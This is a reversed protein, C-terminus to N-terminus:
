PAAPQGEGSADSAAEWWGEPTAAVAQPNSWARPRWLLAHGRAALARATEAELGGPEIQIADPRWQHHIRPTSVAQSLSMGDDVMHSIVQAVSTPITTGGPAGVVLWLKGGPDFVLTPSMSSLPVKGPAPANAGTGVAGFANPVGPAADFDDMEDNLVFGAEPVVVCSGFYFNVTTTLSVANGARDAVSLHSTQSTEPPPTPGPVDAARPGVAAALSAAADKSTMREVEAAAGPVFAPDGLVARRAYLRKSIEVMAHLFAEPRYGGVHPDEHELAQLLGILIAGGSSPLPMSVIRRGRYSGVLPARERVRFGALDAATLVGGDARAARVIAAALPGRYFAEPDKGLLRLTRALAPQRLRTGPIPVAPKGEPGPVLFARAAAPRSALCALRADAARRFHPGVPFGREAIRAAPEVLRSLPMTGFRRALEAYGKVAGPVAVAKGGDLSPSPAGEARPGAFMDPRAAAPAVERFDLAVTQAPQGQRAVHVLAFGGGGLGSSEPEVVALVFAAAVAADVANGGERLIQAAAESALPHASAVAGNPSVATASLLLLVLASM